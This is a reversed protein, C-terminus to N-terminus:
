GAAVEHYLATLSAVHVEWTFRAARKLGAAVLGARREPQTALVVLHSAAAAPHDPDFYLAADGGTEPLAAANSCVVACGCAMAELVPLGFGELRSPLLLALAGAYHGALTRDDVPGLEVLRGALLESLDRRMGGPLPDGIRVLTLGPINRVAENLAPVLAALNKRPACSGVSLVYPGSRAAPQPAFVGADVGMPIVTIQGASIGLHRTVQAAAFLSPTVIRAARTLQHLARRFRDVQGATLGEDNELPALDHVTVITRATAPLASLLHAFGHDLLHCVRAAPLRRVRRPYDVRKHWFRRLGGLRPASAPPAGLADVIELEGDTAKTWRHLAQWYRLMSISGDCPHAPLRVVSLNM